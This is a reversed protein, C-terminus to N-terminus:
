KRSTTEDAGVFQKLKLLTDNSRHISFAVMNKANFKTKILPSIKEQLIGMIPDYFKM